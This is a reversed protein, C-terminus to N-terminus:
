SQVDTAGGRNYVWRVDRLVNQKFEENRSKMLGPMTVYDIAFTGKHKM